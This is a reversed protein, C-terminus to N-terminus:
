IKNEKWLRRAPVFLIAAACAAALMLVVFTRVPSSIRKLRLSQPIFRDMAALGYFAGQSSLALWAAFPPLWFSSLLLILLLYPLLLRGLKYSIFHTWMRNAPSLLAPFFRMVQYNGALTRVKRRFETDLTTPYDAARATEEFILRYGRFFAGIPLFVDDLLTDPPMPKALERRMAYLCGTAGFISDIRSLNQRIWNEYRRYLGIDEEEQRQGRLIALEGSAVGVTPDAFCEILRRLCEPDLRQRVDTFLLIEGTASDIGANLAAAKGARPIRILKLKAGSHAAVISDTSDTSGDSVVLVDILERPYDLALISALKAELFRQGNHVAMVVTVTKLDSGKQVPRAYHRALWALLLPHILIIYLIAAACSFFVIV